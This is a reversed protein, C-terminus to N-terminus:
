LPTRLATHMEPWRILQPHQLTVLLGEPIRQAWGRRQVTLRLVEETYAGVPQVPPCLAATHHTAGLPVMDAEPLLATHRTGWRVRLCQDMVETAGM